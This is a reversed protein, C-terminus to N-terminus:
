ELTARYAESPMRPLVTRPRRSLRGVALRRLRRWAPVLTTASLVTGAISLVIVVIDWLPRKFYLFPFDLSHLGQYLWRRLRRTDDTRQVIMGRAPDVYLWTQAEDAYRVRLVPLSKGNRLDYYHADYEHLWVADQIPVDPMAATALELLTEDGFRPEDFRTFAGAAPDVASVYRHELQPREVRPGLAAYMWQSAEDGSPARYAIWFPEGRFQTAELEKV